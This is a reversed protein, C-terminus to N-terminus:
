ANNPEERLFRDAAEATQRGEKHATYAEHAALRAQPPVEESTIRRIPAEAEVPILAAGDYEFEQDRLDVTDTDDAFSELLHTWMRHDFMVTQGDSLSVAIITGQDNIGTIRAM